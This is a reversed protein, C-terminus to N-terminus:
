QVVVEVRRNRPRQQPDRNDVVPHTGGYGRATLRVSDIGQQVLYQRVVRARQESLRLNLAADGVNDTHGGIELRLTPQARLTRALENLVPRSSPLLAATSQTFYLNPLTVASGARLAGLDPLTAATDTTPNARPPAADATAKPQAAAVSQRTQRAAAVPRPAPQVAVPPAPAPRTPPRTPEPIPKATAPLAAFLQQQSVPQFEATPQDTRRWQLLARSEWRNQFYEVRLPYYRGGELRIRVSAPVHDQDRWSDILRKRGLWFRLGDDMVTGFEYEGTEPVLLWGEWRVSFYEAGVGTAPPQKNWNFDIAADARTLVKQEFNMGNYYTGQLGAGAPMRQALSNEAWLLLGPLVVTYFRLLM